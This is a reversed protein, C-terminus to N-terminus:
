LDDIFAKVEKEARVKANELNDNVLCIDFQDSFELEEKAKGVRMLLRDESETSRQRLRNELTKIDPPM